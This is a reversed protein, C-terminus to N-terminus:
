VYHKRKIWVFGDGKSIIAVDIPGGVTEAEPSVRRKFSTLNVLAEAMEALGEKPLSEVVSMIPDSNFKMLRSRLVNFDNLIDSREQEMRNVFNVQENPSLVDKVSNNFYEILSELKGAIFGEFASYSPHIGNMFVNVMDRQAFAYIRANATDEVNPADGIQVSALRCTRVKGAIVGDVLEHSLAPFIQDTGFGAVVIGSHWPSVPDSLVVRLSNIVLDKASQKVENSLPMEGLYRDVFISWDDISWDDLASNIQERAISVNIGEIPDGNRLKDMRSKICVSVVSDIEGNNLNKGTSTIEEIVDQVVTRLMSLEWGATMLVQERQTEIPIYRVFSSLHEIFQSAYEEVTPYSTLALERRYEKIITEWPISGFSAANYVMVAVPEVTSLAFLKNASNYIKSGPGGITVASDAAIAVAKRNLIAVEATM